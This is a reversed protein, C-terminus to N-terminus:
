DKKRSGLGDALMTLGSGLLWVDKSLALGDPSPRLDNAGRRMAPTRLYLGLLGASFGTLAAGAVATPVFPLLLVAGMGIEATSLLKIFTPADVKGFFPYVSTAFGHLGAATQEDPNRKDLGSSLFYAGTAVRLPINRLTWRSM